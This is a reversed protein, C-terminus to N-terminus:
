ANDLITLQRWRDIQGCPLSVGVDRDKSKGDVTAPGLPKTDKGVIPTPVQSEDALGALSLRRKQLLQNRGVDAGAAAHGQKIRM